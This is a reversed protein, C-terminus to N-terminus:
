RRVRVASAIRQVFFLEGSAGDYSMYRRMREYRMMAGRCCIYVARANDVVSSFLMEHRMAGGRQASSAENSFMRRAFTLMASDRFRCRAARCARLRMSRAPPLAVDNM